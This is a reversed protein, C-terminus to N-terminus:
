KWYDRAIITYLAETFRPKEHAALHSWEPLEYGQLEKYDEFHVGRAGTKALLVDWTKGRPFYKTEYALYDRDSPARIFLVDCGRARLKAVVKAAREIQADIDGDIEKVDDASPTFDEAWIRQALAQYEPDDEVKHWMRTNRDADIESLKRVRTGSIGERAPWHQRLVVTPLAFDPDFYAFYPEIFRISLWQGIKQAPTEKKAYALVDMRAGFGSFFVDPAVGVIVRGKWTTNDALDELVPLPTTGELALQLPRDGALRQWTDLDIDFLMRSAGTIITKPHEKEVRRRQAAWLGDSNQPGPKRGYARWHWEWAGMLLVFVALAGLM